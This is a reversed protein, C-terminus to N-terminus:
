KTTASLTSGTLAFHLHCDEHTGESFGESSYAREWAPSDHVDYMEEHCTHNHNQLIEATSSSGFLRALRPGIPLYIFKRVPKSKTEDTYRKSHCKPCEKLDTYRGCFVLCDKPCAHYVVPKVLYPEILKLAAEYSDPLLNGMPEINHHQMSLMASLADKSTGPHDSFWTFYQQLAQLVTSHSGEYLPTAALGDSYLSPDFPYCNGREEHLMNPPDSVPADMMDFTGEKEDDSLDVAM